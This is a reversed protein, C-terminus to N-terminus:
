LCLAAPRVAGASLQIYRPSLARGRLAKHRAYLSEDRWFESVCDTIFPNDDNAIVGRELKEKARQEAVKEDTTDLSETKFYKQEAESWFRVYWVEGKKEQRKFLSYGARSM